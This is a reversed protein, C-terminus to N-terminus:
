GFKKLLSQGKQLSMEDRSIGVSNMIRDESNKKGIVRKYVYETPCFSYLIFKLM